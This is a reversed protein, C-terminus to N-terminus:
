GFEHVGGESVALDNHAAFARFRGEAFPVTVTHPISLRGAINAYAKLGRPPSLGAGELYV